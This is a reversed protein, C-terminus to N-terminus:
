GKEEEEEEKRWIAEIVPVPESVGKMDREGASRFKVARGQSMERVVNTVLIQDTGAADCLRSRFLM